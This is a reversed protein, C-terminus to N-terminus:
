GKHRLKALKDLRAQADRYDPDLKLLTKLWKEASDYQKLGGALMGARYLALKRLTEDGQETLEVARQYFQLANSYKQQQQLCEGLEITAAAKLEPVKRVEMLTKEAEEFNGVRKLRVGLELKLQVDEPHRECRRAYIELERRHLEDRLQKVLDTAEDTGEHAARKEAVAVHLRMQEVEAAELKEQVKFNGGSVALAKQLILVAEPARGEGMHLDALQFYNEVIEPDDSIARELRQRPTLQIERRKPAHSESVGISPAAKPADAKASLGENVVRGTANEDDGLGSLIRTKDLTLQSIMKDVEPDKKRLEGIRRWVAMAQDFQGVRALSHACHKNIDVDKPNADLANKLYRLEVENFGYAACADAMPRLTSADWPNSKLLEPGQKLVEAWENEKVAKKLARGGSGGSKKKNNHKKQLNDLFAEVYVLNGPDNKVCQLLMDHAYDFDYKEGKAALKMAHDYCTQMRRRIAPTVPEWELRGAPLPTNKADTSM